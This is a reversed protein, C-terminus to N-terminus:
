LYLSFAKSDLLEEPTLRKTPDIAMLSTMADVLYSVRWDNNAELKMSSIHVPQYTHKGVNALHKMAWVQDHTTWALSWADYKKMNVAHPYLMPDKGFYAEPPRYGSTGIPPRQMPKDFLIAHEFNILMIQVNQPLIKSPIVLVNELKIDGHMIKLRHLYTLARAILYVIEYLPKIRLLLTKSTVYQYLNVTGHIKPFVVCNIKNRTKFELLYSTSLDKDTAPTSVTSPDTSKLKRLITMENQFHAQNRNCKIWVRKGNYFGETNFLKHDKSAKWTETKLQPVNRTDPHWLKSIKNQVISPLKNAIDWDPSAKVFDVWFVNFLFLSTFSFWKM